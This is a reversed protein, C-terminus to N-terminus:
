LNTNASMFTISSQLVIKQPSLYLSPFFHKQVNFRRGFQSYEATDTATCISALSQKTHYLLIAYIDGLINVGAARAMISKNLKFHILFMFLFLPSGTTNPKACCNNLPNTKMKSRKLPTNKERRITRVCFVVCPWSVSGVRGNPM